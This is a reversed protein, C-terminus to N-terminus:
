LNESVAAGILSTFGSDDSVDPSVQGSQLLQRVKVVDGEVSAQILKESALELLGKPRMKGRKGECIDSSNFSVMSEGNKHKLIHKQMNICSVTNNWAKIKDSEKSRKKKKTKSTNEPPTKLESFFAQDFSQVDAAQSRTDLTDSFISETEAQIQSDPSYRFDEPPNIIDDIVDTRNQVFDPEIYIANEEPNYDFETHNKMTFAGPISTCLRILQERHWLGVDQTGDPYSMVGPGEREDDKYLGQFVNLM